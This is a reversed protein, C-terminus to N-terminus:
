DLITWSSSKPASTQTEESIVISEKRIGIYELESLKIWLKKITDMFDKLVVLTKHIDTHEYTVDKLSFLIGLIESPKINVWEYYYQLM